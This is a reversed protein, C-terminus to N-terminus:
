EDRIAEIPDCAAARLAPYISFIVSVLLTMGVIFGLTRFDVFVPIRELYYIQRSFLELGAWDPGPRVILIADAIAALAAVGLLIASFWITGLFGMFIWAPHRRWRDLMRWAGMLLLWVFVVSATFRFRWGEGFSPDFRDIPRYTPLWATGLWAAAALM